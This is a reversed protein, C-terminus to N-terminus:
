ELIFNTIRSYPGAGSENFGQIAYFFKSGPPLDVSLENGGGLPLSYIPEAEPYPAYFLVYDNAGLAYWQLTITNGHTGLNVAPASPPNHGSPVFKSLLRLYSAQYTISNELFKYSDTVGNDFAFSKLIPQNKVLHSAQKVGDVYVRNESYDQLAGGVLYGPPPGYSDVVSDWQSGDRFWLHYMEDVSKEAGFRNMNTLFVLSFPNVGHLYHLYGLAADLYDQAIADDPSAIGYMILNTLTLGAASKAHNSGWTYFDMYARYADGQEQYQRAPAFDVWPTYMAEEYVAKVEKSLDDNPYVKAFYLLADQLEQEGGDFNLYKRRLLLIGLEIREDIHARYRPEETLIYLYLAAILHNNRQTLPEDEESANVFGNNKFRSPQLDPNADLWDWAKEAATQLTKAYAKLGPDTQQGFVLAAHGCAGALSITASATAEAYRRPIVDSSPPTTADWTISAVKHLVSGDELQMKLLWDLEFKIEDLLDPIGNGSEPIGFDDDWAGPNEEYALLLDHLTGDANTVYKNLDGADYWGGSLDKGTDPNSAEPNNHNMARVDYDQEEGAHSEGDVWAPEAYPAQKAFNVRQYFFTRAAQRLVEKYVGDGITFRASRGETDNDYIYYEGPTTVASFDFWWVQDGSWEDVKGDKWSIPAGTFVKEGGNTKRVSLTDGPRYSQGADYGKKPNAIIAVKPAHPLYGFQDVKIAQEFALAAAPGLALLLLLSYRM